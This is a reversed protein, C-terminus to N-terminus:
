KSKIAALPAYSATLAMVDGIAFNCEKLWNNREPGM